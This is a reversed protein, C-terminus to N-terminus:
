GQYLKHPNWRWYRLCLKTGDIVAPMFVVWTGNV